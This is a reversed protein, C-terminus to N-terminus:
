HTQNENIKSKIRESQKRISGYVDILFDMSELYYLVVTRHRNIASGIEYENHGMENLIYSIMKRCDVLDRDRKSSLVAETSLEFEACILQIIEDVKM